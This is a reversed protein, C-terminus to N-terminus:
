IKTTEEILQKKLAIRELVEDWLDGGLENLQNSVKELLELDKILHEKIKPDKSEKDPLEDMNLFEKSESTCDYQIACFGLNELIHWKSKTGKTGKFKM